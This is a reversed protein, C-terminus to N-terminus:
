TCNCFNIFEKLFESTSQNRETFEKETYVKLAEKLAAIGKTCYASRQDVEACARCTTGINLQAMAYALTHEEINYVKLAENYANLANKCNTNKDEVHLLTLYVNGLNNQTMAYHTPYKDITRITLAEEYAKIAMKCNESKDKVHTLVRYATGINHLTIGYDVPYKLKTHIKLAEKFAKMAKKINTELEKEEVLALRTYSIGLNNQAMAYYYPLHEITHIEITMKLAEIAKKYNEIKDEFEALLGYVISINLQIGYFFVLHINGLREYAKLAIKMLATRKVDYIGTHYAKNGISFLALPINFFVVIMQEFVDIESKLKTLSIINELYAEEVLITGKGWIIFEKKQLVELWTIWQFDKGILGESKSVIKVFEFLFICNEKYIGCIYMEKLVRLITKEKENCDEFREQMESLHMFISGVTKNFSKKDWKVNANKAIQEGTDVSINSIRIVSKNEFITEIPLNCELMKRKTKEFEIESRCTAVIHVKKEIATRFLHDFNIQEVFRQLDDIFLIEAKKPFLFNEIGINICRPILVRCSPNLGTLAQYAARSKGSLPSGIILLNKKTRLSEEILADSDRIYYYPNYPRTVGIVKAPIISKSKGYFTYLAKTTKTQQKWKRFPKFLFEIIVAFVFALIIEIQHDSLFHIIDM